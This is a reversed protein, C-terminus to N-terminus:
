PRTSGAPPSQPSPQQQGLPQGQGPSQARARQADETWPPVVGNMRAYAISQGLHEAAHDTMFLLFGRYTIPGGDFWAFSKEADADSINLTASRIHAFSRRLTPVIVAKDTTSKELGPVNVGQPMAAGIRGALGFNATALHLFVEAISRVGPAPRWNYKDAPIAEALRIYKNEVAALNKLYEARYGATPPAPVPAAPAGAATSQAAAASGALALAPALLHIRM